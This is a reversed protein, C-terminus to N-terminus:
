RSRSDECVPSKPEFRTLITWTSKAMALCTSCRTPIAEQWNRSWCTRTRSRANGDGDFDCAESLGKVTAVFLGGSHDTFQAGFALQGRDNFQSSRGDENNSPRIFGLFEIERTEGPRVEIQDGAAVVKTLEQGDFAFYGTRINGISGTSASIIAQGQMNVSLDSFSRWPENVGPALGSDTRAIVTIEGNPSVRFLGRGTPAFDNTGFEGSFFISGDSAIVSDGFGTMTLRMDDPFPQAGTRVVLSVDDESTGVFIGRTGNVFHATSTVEGSGNFSPTEGVAGLILNEGFVGPNTTTAVATLLGDRELWVGRHPDWDSRDSFPSSGPPHGFIMSQGQDNYGRVFPSSLEEEGVIRKQNGSLDDLVAFRTQGEDYVHYVIEGHRNMLSGWILDHPLVRFDDVGAAGSGTRAVLKAGQTVDYSWAGGFDDSQGPERFAGSFAVKGVDNITMGLNQFWAFQSGSVTAVPQTGIRAMESIGSPTSLFLGASGNSLGGFFGVDGLNNIVLDASTSLSGDSIFLDFDLSGDAVAIQGDLAVTRFQVEAQVLTSGLLFAVFATSRLLSIM